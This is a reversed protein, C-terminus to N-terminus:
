MFLSFDANEINRFTSLVDFFFIIIIFFYMDCDELCLSLVYMIDHAHINNTHYIIMRAGKNRVPITDRFYPMKMHMYHGVTM